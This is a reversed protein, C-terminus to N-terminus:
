VKPAKLEHDVNEFLQNKRGTTKYVPIQEPQRFERQVSQM